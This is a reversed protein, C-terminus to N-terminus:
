CVPTNRGTLLGTWFGLTALLATYKGDDGDTDATVDM